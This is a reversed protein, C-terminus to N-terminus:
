KQERMTGVARALKRKDLKRTSVAEETSGLMRKRIEEVVEDLKKM